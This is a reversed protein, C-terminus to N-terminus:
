KWPYVLDKPPTAPASEPKAQLRQLKVHVPALVGAGDPVPLAIARHGAAEIRV